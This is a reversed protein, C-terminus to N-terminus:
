GFEQERSVSLSFALALVSITVLAAVSIWPFEGFAPLLTVTSRVWPISILFLPISALLAWLEHMVLTLGGLITMWAIVFLSGFALSIGLPVIPFEHGQKVLALCYSTMGLSAVGLAAVCNGFQYIAILRQRSVPLTLTYNVSAHHRQWPMFVGNSMFCVSAVWAFFSIANTLTIWTFIKDKGLAQALATKLMFDPDFGGSKTRDPVSLGILIAIVALVLLRPRLELWYRYWIM